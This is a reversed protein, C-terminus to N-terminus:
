RHLSPISVIRQPEDTVLRVLIPTKGFERYAAMAVDLKHPGSGVVRGEHVAVYEGRHTALLGPLLKGFARFERRWKDDVAASPDTGLLALPMEITTSDM